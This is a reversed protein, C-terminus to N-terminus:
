IMLRSTLVSRARRPIPSLSLILSEPWQFLLVHHCRATPPSPRHDSSLYPLVLLPDTGDHPANPHAHHDQFGAFSAAISSPSYEPPRTTEFAAQTLACKITRHSLSHDLNTASVTHELTKYEVENRDPAGPSILSKPIVDVVVSASPIVTYMSPSYKCNLCLARGYM